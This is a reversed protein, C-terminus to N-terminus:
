TNTLDKFGILKIKKDKLFKILNFTTIIGNKHMKEYPGIWGYVYFTYIHLKKNIFIELNEKINIFESEMGDFDLDDYYLIFEKNLSNQIILDYESRVASPIHIADSFIFDFKNPFAEKFKKADDKDLVSGKFYSLSNNNLAQDNLNKFRPNIENIDFAIINSNKIGHNVQLFNKLVSAGIELYYIKKNLLKNILFIIFDSYTVVKPIKFDLKKYIRNQLGYNNKKFSNEDIFSDIKSLFNRNKNITNKLNANKHIFYFIRVYVYESKLLLFTKLKNLRYKFQEM